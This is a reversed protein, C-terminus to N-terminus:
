VDNGAGLFLLVAKMRMKKFNGTALNECKSIYQITTSKM